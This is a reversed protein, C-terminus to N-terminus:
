FRCRRQQLPEAFIPCGSNGWLQRDSHNLGKCRCKRRERFTLLRLIGWPKSYTEDLVAPADPPQASRRVAGPWRLFETPSKTPGTEIPRKRRDLGASFGAGDRMETAQM